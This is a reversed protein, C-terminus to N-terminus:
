IRCSKMVLNYKKSLDRCYETDKSYFNKIHYRRKKKILNLNEQISGIISTILEYNLLINKASM